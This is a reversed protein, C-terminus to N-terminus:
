PRFKLDRDTAYWLWEPVNFTAFAYNGMPLWYEYHEPTAGQYAIVLAWEDVYLYWSRRKRRLDEGYTFIREFKILNGYSDDSESEVVCNPLSELGKAIGDRLDAQDEQKIPQELKSVWFSLHTDPDDIDPLFMMGNRDDDLEARSWDSPVRFSLLGKDDSVNEVGRFLPPTDPIPKPTM